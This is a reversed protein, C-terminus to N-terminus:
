PHGSPEGDTSVFLVGENAGSFLDNLVLPLTEFGQRTDFRFALKGSRYHAELDALAPGLKDYFDALVFGRMTIGGYILRMMNQPGPAPQDSNYASIQGCLVIRGRRAMRDVGAQLIPGGVNDFFVDIGKPCLEALVQAVDDKKYDIAADLGCADLLWECKSEGGAIGIVKCGMRKALQAAVSGVSGAAGSVVVTEGPKPRGVEHLGMYATQPNLGLPGMAEALSVGEPVRSVGFADPNLVVYDQWSSFATVLTGVPFDPHRSAVVEGGTPAIVPAGLRMVPHYNGKQGTMWTRLTPVCHFLRNRVLIAGDDLAEGDISEEKYEFDDLTVLGQPRSRLLWIRNKMM